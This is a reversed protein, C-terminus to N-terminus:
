EREGTPATSNLEENVGLRPANSRKAEYAMYPNQKEENVPCSANFKGAEGGQEWAFVACADLAKEIVRCQGCGPHVYVLTRLQNCLAEAADKTIESM